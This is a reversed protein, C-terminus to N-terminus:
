TPEKRSARRPADQTLPLEARVTTGRGPASEISLEGGVLAVREAMSILGLRGGAAARTRAARVDFGKGDDHIVVALCHESCSVAVRVRLAGSHRVINTFTEQVLRYCTTELAAPLRETKVGAFDAHVTFCGGEAQREMFWKLAPVLGFDDLVAPRLDTALSRLHAIAEDILAIARTPRPGGRSSARGAIALRIGTLLQGLDDHLERAIARRESEQVEILRRAVARYRNQSRRLREEARKQNHIDTSVCYWRVIRQRADRLPVSRHLFWRYEGDARRVRSEIEVPNGRAVAARWYRTVRDIDDPHVVARWGWGRSDDLSLSYYELWRRNVTELSGDPMYISVLAPITDIALRSHKASERSM